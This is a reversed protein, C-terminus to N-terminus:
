VWVSKTEGCCPVWELVEALLLDISWLYSSICEWLCLLGFGVLFGLELGVKWGVCRWLTM